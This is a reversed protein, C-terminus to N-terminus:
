WYDNNLRLIINDVINDLITEFDDIGIDDLEKLVCTIWGVWWHNNAEANIILSNIFEEAHYQIDYNM